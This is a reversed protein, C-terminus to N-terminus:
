FTKPGGSSTFVASLGVMNKNTIAFPFALALLRNEFISTRVTDRRFEQLEKFEQVGKKSM